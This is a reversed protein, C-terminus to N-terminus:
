VSGERKIVDAVGARRLVDQVADSGGDIGEPLAAGADILFQVLGPYDGHTIEEPLRMGPGGEPDCCDTSGYITTGLATGGYENVQTLDAGHEVLLHAAELQGAYCASHLPPMSMERNVASGAAIMKRMLQVDGRRAVLGLHGSSPESGPEFAGQGRDQDTAQGTDADFSELLAVLEPYGLRVAYRYPSLGEEDPLNPDAGRELLARVTGESRRNIVAKHLHTRQQHHDIRLTADAGHELFLLAAPEGGFDLARSLCYSVEEAGAGAELLLRLCAVDEFEAAHYIAENASRGDVREGADAGAQLLIQTLAAHNAIGAAGYICTQALKGEGHEILYYSNADAGHELLLRVVQVIQEAREPDRRLFRSYCAYLIPHWGLPGGQSSALSADRQLHETIYDISGCACAAYFDYQALEPEADLLQAGRRFQQSCVASIMTAARQDIDLLRDEVFEKWRSWSAFGYERAVVLHADTLRAGTPPVAPAIADRFRPHFEVFRAVATESGARVDDLLRKAAKRDFQLSPRPLVQSM